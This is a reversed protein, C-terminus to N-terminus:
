SRLKRERLGTYDGGLGVSTSLKRALFSAHTGGVLAVPLAPYIVSNYSFLLITSGRSLGLLGIKELNRFGYALNWAREIHAARTVTEASIGDIYAPTDPPYSNWNLAFTAFSEEAVM